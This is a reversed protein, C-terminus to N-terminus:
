EASCPPDFPVIRGNEMKIVRDAMGFYRDDHSVAIVTKNRARMNELFNQYFKKRFTPDQDAAWEDFVYIPKNELLSMIYALRKKQGTSLDINTLRGKFFKTKKSLEMIKLLKFLKERNVKRAGYFKRFLHFDTFITSFLERYSQYIHHTVITGDVTIEGGQEPYYLGTLIKMLTSKGSGNGGVVFVIEGKKFTFDLPGVDFLHTGDKDLYSYKISKLSIETFDVMPDPPAKPTYTNFKDIIAELETLNDISVASMMFSIISRFIVMIPGWVFLLASVLSIVQYNTVKNYIPFVFVISCLIILYTANIIMFCSNLTIQADTKLAKTERTIDNVDAFLEENKQYSVRIEKFGYLVDKLREFFEAEKKRSLQLKERAPIYASKYIMFCLSLLIIVIMFAALSQSLIYCLISTLSVSSEIAMIMNPASQSFSKTDETLRAYILGTGTEEIFRLETHRIKGLINLRINKVIDQSMAIMRNQSLKKTSIHLTFLIVFAAFLGAQFHDMGTSVNTEAANIISLILAYSFGSFLVLSIILVYPADSYKNIFHILKKM